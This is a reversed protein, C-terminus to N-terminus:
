MDWDQGERTGVQGPEGFVIGREPLRGSTPSPPRKARWVGEWDTLGDLTTIFGTYGLFTVSYGGFAKRTKFFFILSM